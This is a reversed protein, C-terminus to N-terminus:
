TNENNKTNIYTNKNLLLKLDSLISLNKYYNIHNLYM